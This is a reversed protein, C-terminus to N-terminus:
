KNEKILEKLDNFHDAVSQKMFNDQFIYEKDGDCEQWKIYNMVSRELLYLQYKVKIRTESTDM